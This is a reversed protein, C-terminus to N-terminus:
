SGVSALDDWVHWRISSFIIRKPDDLHCCEGSYGIFSPHDGKPGGGIAKLAKKKLFRWSEQVGRGKLVTECPVGGLWHGLSGL